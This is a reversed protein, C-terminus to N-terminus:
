NYLASGYDEQEIRLAYALTMLAEVKRKEYYSVGWAWGDKVLSQHVKTDSPLPESNAMFRRWIIERKYEPFVDVKRELMGVFTAMNENRVISNETSSSFSNQPRILDPDHGPKDLSKPLRQVTSPYAGGMRLILRYERYREFVAVLAQRTETKKLEPINLGLQISNNV